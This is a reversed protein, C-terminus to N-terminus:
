VELVNEDSTTGAPIELPARDGGNDGAPVARSGGFAGAQILKGILIQLEPSATLGVIHVYGRMSEDRRAAELEGSVKLAMEIAKVDGAEAKDGLANYIRPLRDRFAERIRQTLAEQFEPLKRWNYLTDRGIGVSDAVADLNEGPQRTYLAEVAKQQTDTLGLENRDSSAVSRPARMM